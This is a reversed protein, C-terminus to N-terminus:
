AAPAANAADAAITAADLGAGPQLVNAMILGVALAVTTASLFYGLAKAGIRGVHRFEGAGAIGMVLSGFILPVVIMKILHLFLDSLPKLAIGVEPALHGLAVGAVLGILIQQTLSIKRM